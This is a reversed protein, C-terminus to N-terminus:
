CRGDTLPVVRDVLPAIREDHSAILVTTRRERALECLLSIVAAGNEQDLSSTPEDALVVAPKGALARAIAVRQQEGGSLHAPFRAGKDSVGLRDMIENIASRRSLPDLGRQQLVLEINERATLAHILNFSQFIFGLRELRLRARERRGLSTIEEGEIKVSGSTPTLMGALVSLLTTKGSGSPGNILVVEGRGARITAGRLAQVPGAESPYTMVLVEGAIVPVGNMTISERTKNVM